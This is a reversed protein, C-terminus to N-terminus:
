LEIGCGCLSPQSTEQLYEGSRCGSYIHVPPSVFLYACVGGFGWITQTPMCIFFTVQFINRKMQTYIRDVFQIMNSSPNGEMKGKFYAKFRAFANIWTPIYCKPCNPAFAKM